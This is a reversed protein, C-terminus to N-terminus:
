KEKKFMNLSKGEMQLSAKIGANKKVILALQEIEINHKEAFLVCAEIYTCGLNDVMNNITNSIEAM